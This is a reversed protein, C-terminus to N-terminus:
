VQRSIGFVTLGEFNPVRGKLSTFLWWVFSNGAPCRQLSLLLCSELNCGKKQEMGRGVTELLLWAAM